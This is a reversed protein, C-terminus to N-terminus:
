LGGLVQKAVDFHLPKQPPTTGFFPNIPSKDPSCAATALGAKPNLYYAIMDAYDESLNDSGTCMSAHAGYYSVAGENNFADVHSWYQSKEKTQCNRIVHGLEHTLIFKFYDGPTYPHLYISIGSFCGVQQSMNNSIAVINSGRVLDIFNTGSVESLKEWALRLHEEDFGDM